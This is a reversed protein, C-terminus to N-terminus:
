QHILIWCSLLPSDSNKTIFNLLRPLLEMVSLFQEHEFAIFVFQQHWLNQCGHREIGMRFQTSDPDRPGFFIFNCQANIHSANHFVCSTCGFPCHRGFMM